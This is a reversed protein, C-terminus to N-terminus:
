RARVADIFARLNETSVGPPVGGGCSLIWRSHDPNQSLLDKAAQRVQEPKGEALVDRPPLNGLITMRPGALQRIEAISSQIGPNFLNIGIEPYHRVSQACPADNHFFKVSVNSDYVEALYPLGFAIFDEEGLFGVVDDLMMIGDITPFTERQLSHWQKLFDTIIRLLQHMPEPDTKIAMLFETTGMLFTAVNLPGRSVSFRIRHGLDEIRPQAWRLRNLVLPLLGDTSPDPTKLDAIQAVSSIVKEAYPFEDRPFLCRSGFASPETCMGFESWFGPLFWAEPFTEIAKRNVEFWLTESALYQAIPQGYWGPLWPCDIIFGVPLPDLVKGKLVALLEKWQRDTM